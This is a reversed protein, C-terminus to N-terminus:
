VCSSAILKGLIFCNLVVIPLSHTSGIHFHIQIKASASCKDKTSFFTNLLKSKIKVASDCGQSLDICCASNKEWDGRQHRHVRWLLKEHSWPRLAINISSCLCEARCSRKDERMCGEEEELRRKASVTELSVWLTTKSSFSVGALPWLLSICHFVNEPIIPTFSPSSLHNPDTSIHYWKNQDSFTLSFHFTNTDPPSPQVPQVVAMESHATCSSGATNHQPKPTNVSLTLLLLQHLLWSWIM